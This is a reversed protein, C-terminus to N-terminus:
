ENGGFNIYRKIDDSTPNTLHGRRDNMALINDILTAGKYPKGNQSMIRQFNQEIDLGVAIGSEVCEEYLSCMELVNMELYKFKNSYIDKISVGYEDRTDPLEFNTYNEIIDDILHIYHRLKNKAALQVDNITSRTALQLFDDETLNFGNNPDLIFSRLTNECYRSAEEGAKDGNIKQWDAYCADDKTWIWRMREMATVATAFDPAISAFVLEDEHEQVSCIWGNKLVYWNHSSMIDRALESLPKRINTPMLSEQIPEAFMTLGENEADIIRIDNDDHNVEKKLNWYPLYKKLRPLEYRPTQLIQLVDNGNLPTRGSFINKTKNDSFGFRRGLEIQTIGEAKAANRLAEVMMTPTVKM